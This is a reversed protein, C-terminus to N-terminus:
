QLDVCNREMLAYSFLRFINDFYISIFGLQGKYFTKLDKYKLM